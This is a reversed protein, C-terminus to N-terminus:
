LGYMRLAQVVAQTLYAVALVVLLPQWVQVEGRRPTATHCASGRPAQRSLRARCRARIRETRAPDPEASPLEALLRTLPESM